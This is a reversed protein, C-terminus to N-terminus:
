ESRKGTIMVLWSKRKFLYADVAIGVLHLVVLAMLGNALTGHLNELWEEGWFADLGMMWGSIGLAVIVVWILLYVYSAAPNHAGYDHKTKSFHSKFFAILDGLRLPWTKFSVAGNRAAVGWLIRLLMLAVVTYGIWLHPPDCSCFVVDRCAGSFKEDVEDRVGEIFSNASCREVWDIDGLVCKVGNNGKGSDDEIKEDAWAFRWNTYTRDHCEM